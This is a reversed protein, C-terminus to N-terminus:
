DFLHLKLNMIFLDLEQYQIEWEQLRLFRSANLSFSYIAISKMQWNLTTTFGIRRLKSIRVEWVSHNRCRLCRFTTLNILGIMQHQVMQIELAISPCCSQARSSPTMLMKGFARKIACWLRATHIYIFERCLYIKKGLLRLFSRQRNFYLKSLKILISSDAKM